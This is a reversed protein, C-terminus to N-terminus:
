RGAVASLDQWQGGHELWLSRWAAIAEGKLLLTVDVSQDGRSLQICLESWLGNPRNQMAAISSRLLYTIIWGQAVKLEEQILVLYHTSLLLLTSATVPRRFLLWRKWTGPQFVLGEFAEGPLLGYIRVGNAFKLPLTKLAPPATLPAAITDVPAAPIVQTAHLLQRLPPSLRPWAVTNFEVGIRTPSAHGQAVIELFGYLLLLTAKLYMLGCGQLHTVQPEQDPWISALLHIVDTSTFLLAQKPVYNWGRQLQAPFAIITQLTQRPVLTTVTPSQLEIPLESVDKLVSPHREFGRALVEKRLQVLRKEVAHISPTM